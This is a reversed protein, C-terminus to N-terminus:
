QRQQQSREGVDVPLSFFDIRQQAGTRYLRLGGVWERWALEVRNRIEVLKGYQVAVVVVTSSSCCSSCQGRAKLVCRPIAHNLLKEREREREQRHIHPTMQLTSSVPNGKGCQKKRKNEENRGIEKERERESKRIKENRTCWRGSSNSVSCIRNTRIILGM